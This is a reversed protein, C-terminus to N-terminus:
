HGSHGLIPQWEVQCGPEGPLAGNADPIILQVFDPFEGLINEAQLAYDAVREDCRVFRAPLRADDAGLVFEEYRRPEIPEGKKIMDVIVHAYNHAVQQPLGFVIIEPHGYTQQLGVTYSMSVMGADVKHATALVMFGHKAVIERAQKIFKAM